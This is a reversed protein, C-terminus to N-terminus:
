YEHKVVQASHYAVGENPHSDESTLIVIHTRSVHGTSDTHHSPTHLKAQSYVQSM